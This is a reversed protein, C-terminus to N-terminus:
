NLQSAWPMKEKTWKSSDLRSYIDSECIEKAVKAYRRVSRGAQILAQEFAETKEHERDFGHGMMPNLLITWGKEGFAILRALDDDSDNVGDMLVYNIAVEDFRHQSDRINECIEEISDTQRMLASRAADTTAHLSWQLRLKESPLRELRGLMKSGLGSFCYRTSAHDPSVWQKFSERLKQCERWNLLAEGEGCFSLEIPKEGKFGLGALDESCMRAMSAASIGRAKEMDGSVCFSCGVVCGLQTPCSLVVKGSVDIGLCGTSKGAIEIPQHNM